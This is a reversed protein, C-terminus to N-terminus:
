FLDSYEPVVRSEVQTAAIKLASELRSTVVTADLLSESKVLKLEIMHYNGGGDYAMLDVRGYASGRSDVRWEKKVVYAAKDIPPLVDKLCFYFFDQLPYERVSEAYPAYTTTLRKAAQKMM